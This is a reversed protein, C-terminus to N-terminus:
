LTGMKLNLLYMLITMRRIALKQYFTPYSIKLVKMTKFEKGAYIKYLINIVAQENTKNTKALIQMEGNSM